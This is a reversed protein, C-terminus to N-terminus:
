PQRYNIRWLKKKNILYNSSDFKKIKSFLIKKKSKNKKWIKIAFQKVSMNKGSALEWEQPFSRKNKKKFNLTTILGDIVDDIYNFDYKQHGSTMKLDKNNKAYSNLLPWLRQKPEDRGYVHFLKIIRCKVNFIKSYSKCLDSFIYKTLAYNFHPEKLFTSNIKKQKLSRLIKEEKNTSIIVWKKCNNNIANILLKSSKILNFEYAKKFDVYKDYAGVTAFHMLVDSKKLEKWNKDIRGVLWKVNKLKPNNKKRTLAFIKIKKNIAKKIFNRAIYGNSGTIFINM